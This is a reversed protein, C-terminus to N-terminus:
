RALQLRAARPVTPLTFTFTSGEGLESEVSIRGAQAETFRRAIALGIGSGNHSAGVESQYFREFIRAQDEATMGVGHDTVSIVVTGRKVRGSVRIVTGTPSFKAANTLLNVLIHAFAEEDALMVLTPAADVEVPHDTLVPALDRVVAETTTRVVLPRPDLKVQNAEIRAFDVLQDVLGSLNDTNGSARGLLDRRREEPLADWHVLVTDVFGKVATLPTRLEHSVMSFFEGKLRDAEALEEAARHQQDYANALRTLVERRARRHTHVRPSAGMLAAGLGVALLLLNVQGGAVAALREPLSPSDAEGAGEVDAASRADGARGAETM